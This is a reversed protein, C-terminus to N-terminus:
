KGKKQKDELAVQERRRSLKYLGVLFLPGLIDVVPIATLYNWTLEGYPTTGLQPFGVEQFPAPSLYLWSAGGAENAGYIQDVYKAPSTAIRDQAVKMLANRTGFITAKVPCAEVCAPIGGQKVVRDYCMTCKRIRPHYPESYEYAPISYPCVTMCYRCGICVKEDWIVPGEPTKMLASVPCASVCAPEDCHMCQVKRYIPLRGNTQPYRNVVTFARATPRRLTDFVAASSFSVEPAPLRNVKNCVVECARCGICLTLDTLLGLRQASSVTSAARATRPAAGYIVTAGALAGATQLFRRRTLVREM